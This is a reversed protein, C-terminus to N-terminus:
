KAKQGYKKMVRRIAKQLILLTLMAGATAVPNSKQHKM